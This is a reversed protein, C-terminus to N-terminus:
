QLVMIENIYEKVRLYNEYYGYNLVEYDYGFDELLEILSNFMARRSEMSSHGLYRVGDDIFTGTPALVFIKHWKIYKSQQKAVQYLAHYDEMNLEFDPELAYQKAYMLTVLNDTDSIIIGRNSLSDINEANVKNQEYLNYHFDGFDLESDIKNTEVIRNRGMEESYPLAFYRAIDKVLTTKGESATGTILINHSFVKRFEPAIYDWYKLPNNRIMTASIPLIQRSILKSNEGFAGLSMVYNSEGVYWIRKYRYADEGMKRFVENLWIKWNSKSMSQDIGLETDNIYIVKVLEDNAFTQKVYRYRKSLPLLEGGRDGEYGCVIVYCLDNEKKAQMILDLHGKHLPCFCGLVVGTKRMNSIM